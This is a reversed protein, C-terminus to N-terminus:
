ADQTAPSDTPIAVVITPDDLLKISRAIMAEISIVSTTDDPGMQGYAKRLDYLREFMARRSQRDM